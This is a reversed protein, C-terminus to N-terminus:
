LILRLKSLPNIVVENRSQLFTAGNGLAMEAASPQKRRIHATSEASQDLHLRVITTATHRRKGDAGTDHPPLPTLLPRAVRLLTLGGDEYWRQQTTRSDHIICKSALAPDGHITKGIM